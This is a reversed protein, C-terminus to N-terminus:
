MQKKGEVGGGGDARQKEQESPLVYDEMAGHNELLLTQCAVKIKL